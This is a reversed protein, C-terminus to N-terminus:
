TRNNKSTDDKISLREENDQEKFQEEIMSDIFKSNFFGQWFDSNVVFAFLLFILVGALILIIYEM